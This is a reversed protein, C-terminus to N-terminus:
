CRNKIKKIKKFIVILLQEMKYTSFSVLGSFHNADLEPMGTLLRGSYGYVYEKGSEWKWESRTAAAFGSIPNLYVKLIKMFSTMCLDVCLRFYPGSVNQSFEYIVDNLALSKRVM